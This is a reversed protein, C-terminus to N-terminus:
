GVTEVPSMRRRAVLVATAAAGAAVGGLAGVFAVRRRTFRRVRLETTELAALTESLLGPPPSAHVGRLSRLSRVLRRYRALEAQSRLDTEIFARVEPELEDAGDVLGPMLDAVDDFRM